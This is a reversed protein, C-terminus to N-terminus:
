EGNKLGEKFGDYASVFPRAVKAALVGLKNGTPKAIEIDKVRAHLDCVKKYTENWKKSGYVVVKSQKKEEAM